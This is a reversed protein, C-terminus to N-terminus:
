SSTSSSASAPHFTSIRYTDRAIETVTPEMGRSHLVRRGARGPSPTTRSAPSPAATRRACRPTGHRDDPRQEHDRHPGADRECAAAVSRGVRRGDRIGAGLHFGVARAGAGLRM